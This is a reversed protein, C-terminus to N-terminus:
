AVGYVLVSGADFNGGSCTVGVSTTSTRYSTAATQFNVGMIVGNALDIDFGGFANATASATVAILIGDVSINIGATGSVNNFVFRLFKYPTLTLGTLSQSTGSTTNITGLLTYSSSSAAAWVAGGGSVTLVQGTTGIALRAVTNVGTAVLIDGQALTLGSLSALNANQAQVNTGIVLGLNSRATPADSAGTGGKAVPVTNEVAVAGLGLNNRATPVSTVDSLNNSGVMDGTGAGAAGRQVFLEWRLATLDTAFTGATHAVLCIYVDGNQRVLDNKVYAVGTQWTSRFEPVSTLDVIQQGNLTLNDADITGVNLLANGNLDLDASMTNPVSGDRSITNDFADEIDRFAQNLQGASAFQGTITPLNPAKAM